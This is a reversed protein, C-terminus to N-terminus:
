AAAAIAERSRRAYTPTIECGIFRYGEAMCAIGTSGGGAFPDLVLGGPTCIRVLERMVAVPKETQHRRREIKVPACHVHGALM